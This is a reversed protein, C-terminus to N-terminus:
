ESGRPLGESGRFDLFYVSESNARRGHQTLRAWIPRRGTRWPLDDYNGALFMAIPLGPRASAAEASPISQLHPVCRRRRSGLVPRRDDAVPRSCREVGALPTAALLDFKRLIAHGSWHYAGNSFCTAYAELKRPWKRGCAPLKRWSSTGTGVSPSAGSSRRAKRCRQRLSYESGSSCKASSM